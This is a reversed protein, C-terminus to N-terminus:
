DKTRISCGPQINQGSFCVGEARDPYVKTIKIEGTKLGPVFFRHKEAGTFVGNCNYVEFIDGPAIGVKEGSSIVVKEAFISTIYGKWPQLVIPDCIQEVMDEAISKLADNITHTSIESTRDISDYFVDEIQIEHMYSKDLLKAGTLTDYVETMVQVQVFDHVTKFWLIGRTKKHNRIDILAGTVVANLGLYRGTKALEFNDILGSTTRPLNVFYDPYGPNYPELVLIDQCSTKIIEALDKTFNEELGKGVFPTKNKFFAIGVRKKLDKDPAKYDRIIRKTKKKMNSYSSCGTILPICLPLFLIWTFMHIKLYLAKIKENM